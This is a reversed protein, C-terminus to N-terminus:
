SPLLAQVLYVIQEELKAVERLPLIHDRCADVPFRSEERPFKGGDYAQVSSHSMHIQSLQFAVTSQFRLNCTIHSRRFKLLVRSIKVAPVKRWSEVLHDPHRLM